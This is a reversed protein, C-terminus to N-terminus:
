AGPQNVAGAFWVLGSDDAVAFMFPRDCIFQIPQEPLFSAGMAAMVTFAAAEVGYEDATLRAAHKAASVYTQPGEGEYLPSFDSTGADFAREIGLQKLVDALDTEDTVDLKPFSYDVRVNQPQATGALIEAYAPDAAIDALTFGEDPLFLWFNKGDQLAVSMAGFHEGRFYGHTSGHMFPVTVDGSPSHFVEQTTLQEMFPQQWSAKYYLTTVLALVTEKDLKVNGAQEKLLGHTQENIWDQLLRNYEESGMTGSYSSAAYREALTQMTETNYGDFDNRLWLSAAPLSTGEEGDYYAARLVVEVRARLTEISDVGLVDLVEARTDGDTIEALLALAMAVNLPSYVHNKEDATLFLRLAEQSVLGDAFHATDEGSGNKADTVVAAALVKAPEGAMSPATPDQAASGACGAFLLCGAALLATYKTIRSKKKM